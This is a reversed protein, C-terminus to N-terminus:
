LMKSSLCGRIVYGVAKHASQAAGGVTMALRETLFGMSIGNALRATTPILATLLYLNRRCTNEHCNKPAHTHSDTAFGLALVQLIEM